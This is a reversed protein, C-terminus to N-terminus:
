LWRGLGFGIAAGACFATWLMVIGLMVTSDWAEEDPTKGDAYRM